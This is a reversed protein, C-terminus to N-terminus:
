YIKNNFVNRQDRVSSTKNGTNPCKINRIKIFHHCLKVLFKQSRGRLALAKELSGKLLWLIMIM